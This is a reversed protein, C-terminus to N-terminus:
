PDHETHRNLQEQHAKNEMLEIHLVGGKPANEIKGDYGEGNIV